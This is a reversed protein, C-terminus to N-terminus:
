LNRFRFREIDDHYVREGYNIWLASTQGFYREMPAGDNGCHITPVHGITGEIDLAIEGCQPCRFDFHTVAM